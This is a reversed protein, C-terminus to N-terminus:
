GTARYWKALYTAPSDSVTEMKRLTVNPLYALTQHLSLAAM